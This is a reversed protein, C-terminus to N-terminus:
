AGVADYVVVRQWLHSHERVFALHVPHDQYAKEAAADDFWVLESVSWSADVVDRATTDAPVGVHMGRIHEIARLSEIGKILAARDAASAPNRMWFFVHHVLARAPISM